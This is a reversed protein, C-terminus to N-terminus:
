RLDRSGNSSRNLIGNELIAPVIRFSIKRSSAAPDIPKDISGKDKTDDNGHYYCDKHDGDGSLSLLVRFKKNKTFDPFGSIVRGQSTGSLIIRYVHPYSIM